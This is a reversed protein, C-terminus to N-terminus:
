NDEDDYARKGYWTNYSNILGLDQVIYNKVSPSNDHAVEVVNLGSFSHCSYYAICCTCEDCYM